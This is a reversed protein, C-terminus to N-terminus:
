QGAVAEKPAFAACCGDTNKMDCFWFGGDGLHKGELVGAAVDLEFGDLKRCVYSKRPLPATQCVPRFGSAGQCWRCDECFVPESM